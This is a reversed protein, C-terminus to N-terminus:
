TRRARASAAHGDLGEAEALSAIGDITQDSMGHRYFVTGSRKLFTYVSVGSAFRATTGTPLCHSPGAWYDGAAVPTQDGLFFEGGHRVRELWAEPDGVALNVHEAAIQDAVAAAQAEDHVLVAASGDGLAQEIADRRDRHAIQEVLKENVKAIVQKSWAVLYCRGPNHEAQAILDSAVFAPNASEDAIVVIESPGYFGDIGVRGTVHLKALQTYLNGPGAILDVPDVLRTGIALAAIAQAGGIRYVRSIGLLACTALVLPSIDTVPPGHDSRERDGDPPRTPPPSVVCIEERKVGAALAPVALMVVTSPYSAKGGPVALGVRGIPTLRLGLEAGGLKLPSPNVPKIHHQYAHVQDIATELAQRLGRDLRDLSRTLEQTEVVIRDATFRPDTWKQMYRVVAADGEDAVDAVIRSVQHAADTDVWSSRRLARFWEFGDLEVPGPPLKYTRLSM